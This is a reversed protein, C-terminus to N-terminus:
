RPKVTVRVTTTSTTGQAPRLEIRLPVTVRRGRQLTRRAAKTLTTSVKFTAAHTVTRSATRVRSGSVRLRGGATVKAWVAVGSASARTRVISVKAVPPKPAPDVPSGPGDTHATAVDPSGPPPTPDGQCRDGACPEPPPAALFGGDARAVYVDNDGGDVDQPALSDQTFFFVDRGARGTDYFYSGFRGAGSSVLRTGGAASYEYVDPLGNHDEPVLPIPTHFFLRGDDTLATPPTMYQKFKIFARYPNRAAEPTPTDPGACTVCTVTGTEDDYLSVDRGQPRDLSFSFYRGNASVSAYRDTEEFATTTETFRTGAQILHVGGPRAVYLGEPGAGTAGSTFYYIADGADSVGLVAQSGTTSATGVSGAVFTLADTDADYRYLSGAGPVYAPADPTLREESVFFVRRGDKSAAVFLATRTTEPSTLRSRSIHVTTGGAGEIHRQYLQGPEDCSPDGSALLAPARFVVRDADDSVANSLVRYSPNSTTLFSDGVTAGCPSVPTVGDDQVDVPITEGDRREYVAAGAARATDVTTFRSLSAFVVRSADANRGLYMPYGFGDDVTVPGAGRSVLVDRGDDHQAYVDFQPFLADLGTNQDDPDLDSAFQGIGVRLDDTFDIATNMHSPAFPFATTPAPSWARATWGDDTRRALYEAPFQNDSGGFPGFTGIVARDGDDSAGGFRGFVTAVAGGEVSYSAKDAPSVLEYARCDTLRESHQQARIAANPCTDAAHAGGAAVLATAAAAIGAVALSALRGRAGGTSAARPRAADSRRTRRSRHQVM